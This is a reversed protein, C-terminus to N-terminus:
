ERLQKVLDDLTDKHQQLDGSIETKEVPKQGITDRIFTAAKVDGKAAKQLMALMIAEQMTINRGKIAAISQIQEIDELSGSKIPMRLLTDLTECLAKKERKAVGSAIGGKRGSEVAKKGSKFQTNKSIKKLEEADAM